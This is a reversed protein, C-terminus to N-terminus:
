KEKEDEEPLRKIVTYEDQQDSESKSCERKRKTSEGKVKIIIEKFFTKSECFDM